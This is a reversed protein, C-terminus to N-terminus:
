PTTLGDKDFRQILGVSTFTTVDSPIPIFFAGAAFIEGSNGIVGSYAKAHNLGTTLKGLNGFGKDLMGNRTYRALAMESNLGNSIYGVIINKNGQTLLAQGFADIVTGDVSFTTSTIGKKEGFSEDLSSYLKPPIAHLDTPPNYTYAMLFFAEHLAYGETISHSGSIRIQQDAQAIGTAEAWYPDMYIHSNWFSWKWRTLHVTQAFGPDWRGRITEGCALSKYPYAYNDCFDKPTDPRSQSYTLDLKTTTVMHQKYLESFGTLILGGDGDALMATATDNSDKPLKGDTITNNKIQGRQYFGFNYVKPEGPKCETSTTLDDMKCLELMRTTGLSHSLLGTDRDLVTVFFDDNKHTSSPWSEASGALAIRNVFPGQDPLLTLTNASASLPILSKDYGELSGELLVRGDSVKTFPRFEGTPELSVLFARQQDIALNVTGAVFLNGTKPDIVLSNPVAQAGTDDLIKVTALGYLGFNKLPKGTTPDLAVVGICQANRTLTGTALLAKETRQISRIQTLEPIKLTGKTDFGTDSLLDSACTSGVRQSDLLPAMRDSGSMCGTMWLSASLVAISLKTNM